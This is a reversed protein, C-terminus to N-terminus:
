RARAIAADMRPTHSAPHKHEIDLLEEMAELLRGLEVPKTLYHSIGLERATARSAAVDFGSIIAIATRCCGDLERLRRILEFGNMRPMHLNLLVVDPPNHRASALASEGSYHTECDFGCINLLTALTDAADHLDDVVLVRPAHRVMSKKLSGFTWHWAEQGYDHTPQPPM